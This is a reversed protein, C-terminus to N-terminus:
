NGNEKKKISYVCDAFNRDHQFNFHMYVMGFSQKPCSEMFSHSEVGIGLAYAIFDAM